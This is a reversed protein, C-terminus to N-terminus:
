AGCHLVAFRQIAFWKYYFQYCIGNENSPDLFGYIAPIYSHSKDIGVAIKLSLILIFRGDIIKLAQNNAVIMKQSIIAQKSGIRTSSNNKALKDIIGINIPTTMTTTPVIQGNKQNVTELSNEALFM